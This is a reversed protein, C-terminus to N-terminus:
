CIDKIINLIREEYELNLFLHSLIFGKIMLSVADGESIGRSMLYFLNDYNFNGVVSGHRAEVDDEDILMNPEIRADVDGMCMIKTDQSMRCNTNGKELISDIVFSVKSNDLGVCKNSVNSVVNINNHYIKMKYDDIGRCVSSLRYDIESDKGNLYVEEIVKSSVNNYFKYILLRSNSGLMYKVRLDINNNINYIFLKISVSNKIIINIDLLNTNVVEIIYGIDKIFTISNDKIIVYEDVYDVLKNNDIIIKNM